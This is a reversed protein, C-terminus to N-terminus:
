IFAKRKEITESSYCKKRIDSFQQLQKYTYTYFPYMMTVLLQNVFAQQCYCLWERKLPRESSVTSYLVTCYLLLKSNAIFLTWHTAFKQGRIPQNLDRSKFGPRQNASRRSSTTNNSCPRTSHSSNIISSSSNSCEESTWKPSILFRIQFLPINLMNLCSICTTHLLRTLGTNVAATQNSKKQSALVLKLPLRQFKM